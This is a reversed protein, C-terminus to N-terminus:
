NAVWLSDAQAPVTTGSASTEAVVDALALAVRLELTRRELSRGLLEEAQRIRYAVTNDH